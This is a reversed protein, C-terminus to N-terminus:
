KANHVYEAVKSVWTREGGPNTIYGQGVARGNRFMGEAKVGNYGILTGYGNQKGDVFYGDFTAGDAFKLFGKGNFNSGKFEGVYYDGNSYWYTGHGDMQYDKFTGQYKDGNSHNAVGEIIRGEQFQGTYTLGDKKLTGNGSFFGKTISGVYELGNGLTVTGNGNFDFRGEELNGFYAGGQARGIPFSNDNLNNSDVTGEFKYGRPSVIFLKLRGVPQGDVCDGEVITKDAFTFKCPGNLKGGVWQGEVTSHLAHDRLWTTKGQGDATCNKCDGEYVIAETDSNLPNWVACGHEEDIIWGPETSGPTSLPQLKRCDRSLKGCGTSLIALCVILVSIKVPSIRKM